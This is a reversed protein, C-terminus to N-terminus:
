GVSISGLMMSDKGETAVLCTRCLVLSGLKIRLSDITHGSSLQLNKIRTSLSYRISTSSPAALGHCAKSPISNLHM